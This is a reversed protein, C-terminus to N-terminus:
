KGKSFPVGPSAQAVLGPSLFAFPLSVCPSWISACFTWFFIDRGTTLYHVTYWHHPPKLSSVPAAQTCGPGGTCRSLSTCLPAWPLAPTCIPMCSHVSTCPHVSPCQPTCLLAPTCLSPCPHVSTSLPVWLSPWSAHLSPALPGASPCATPLALFSPSRM